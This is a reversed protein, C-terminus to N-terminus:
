SRVKRILEELSAQPPEVTCDGSEGGDRPLLRFLSSKPVVSFEVRLAELPYLEPNLSAVYLARCRGVTRATDLVRDHLPETGFMMLDLHVDTRLEEALQFYRLVIYIEQDAPWATLVVANPELGELSGRGFVAASEDGRQNPDLFYSIGDRAGTGVRPIGLDEQTVGFAGLLSPAISYLAIPTLVAALSALRVLRRSTLNSVRCVIAKAGFGIFLAFVLYSPLHFAFRDPVAYNASFVAHVVFLTALFVAARRKERAMAVIGYAGAAVGFPTFQYLLM